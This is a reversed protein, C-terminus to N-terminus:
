NLFKLETLIEWRILGRGFRAAASGCPARPRAAGPPARGIGAPPSPSAGARDSAVSRRRM